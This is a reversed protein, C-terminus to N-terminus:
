KLWFYYFLTFIIQKQIILTSIEVWQTAICLKRGWFLPQATEEYHKGNVELVYGPQGSSEQVQRENFSM